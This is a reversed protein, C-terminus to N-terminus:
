VRAKARELWEEVAKIMDGRNANSIWTAPQPADGFAFMLLAFGVARHRDPNLVGDLAKAIHRAEAEPREQLKRQETTMNDDIKM